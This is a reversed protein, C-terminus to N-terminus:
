LRPPSRHSSTTRPFGAGCWARAHRHPRSGSEAGSISVRVQALWQFAPWQASKLWLVLDKYGMLEGHMYKHSRLTLGTPDSLEASNGQLIQSQPPPAVHRTM